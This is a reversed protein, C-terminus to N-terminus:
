HAKKHCAVTATTGSRISTHRGPAGGGNKELLKEALAGIAARGRQSTNVNLARSARALLM